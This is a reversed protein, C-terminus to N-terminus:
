FAGCPPGGQQIAEQAAMWLKQLAGNEFPVIPLNLQSLASGNKCLACKAETSTAVISAGCLCFSQGLLLCGCSSWHSSLSCPVVTGGGIIVCSKCEM